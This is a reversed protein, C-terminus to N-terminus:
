TSCQIKGQEQMGPDYLVTSVDCLSGAKGTGFGLITCVKDEGILFTGRSRGRAAAAAQMAGAQSSARLVPCGQCLGLVALCVGWRPFNRFCCSETFWMKM